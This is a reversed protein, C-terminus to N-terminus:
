LPGSYDHAVHACRQDWERGAFMRDTICSLRLPTDRFTALLRELDSGVNLTEDHVANAILNRDDYQM